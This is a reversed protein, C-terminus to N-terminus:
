VEYKDKPSLKAKPVPVSNATCEVQIGNQSTFNFPNKAFHGQYGDDELLVLWFLRPSHGQFVDNIDVPTQNAILQYSDCRMRHFLFTMPNLVSTKEVQEEMYQLIDKM